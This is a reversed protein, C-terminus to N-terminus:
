GFATLGAGPSRHGRCPGPLAALDKLIDAKVYHRDGIDPLADFIEDLVTAIKKLDSCSDLEICWREWHSVSGGNARVDRLVEVVAQAAYLERDFDKRLQRLFIRDTAGSLIAHASELWGDRTGDAVGKSEYIEAALRSGVRGIQARSLIQKGLCSAQDVRSIFNAVLRFAEM